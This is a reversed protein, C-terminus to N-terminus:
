GASCLRTAHLVVVTPGQIDFAKFKGETYFLIQEKYYIQFVPSSFSSFSLDNGMIGRGLSLM